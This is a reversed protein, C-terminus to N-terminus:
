PVSLHRDLGLEVIRRRYNRLTRECVYADAEHRVNLAYHWMQNFAYAEVTAADSLDHRQQLILAGMAAYLDKSPRGQTRSFSAALELTPLQKLLHDRFVGAWSRKLAQRKAESFHDVIGFLDVTAHDRVTLM